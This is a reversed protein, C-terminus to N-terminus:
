FPPTKIEIWEELKVTNQPALVSELHERSSYKGEPDAAKYARYKEKHEEGRAWGYHKVRIDSQFSIIGRGRYFMPWRGSHFSRDPWTYEIEPFYRALLLSFRPWPNWLGDVRYHTTSKWFDFMRFEVGDFDCQNILCKVENQMRDEFIEDADVTLIWDPEAAAMLEWLQARLRAEHKFFLSEENRCLIVKQYSACIEPTDDTSADDLIVIQDVFATLHELVDKLYRDAENHVIMMATLKNGSTKRVKGPL